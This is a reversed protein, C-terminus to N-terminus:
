AEKTKLNNRLRLVQLAGLLSFHLLAAAAGDHILLWHALIALAAPYTLRQLLRWHRGLLLVMADNSTLALPVLLIFALWGIWIAPLAVEALVAAANGMDALYLMTHLLAYAFASVGLYRRRRRMWRWFGSNPLLQRMPSIAMTLIMLRASLEGTPHLLVTTASRGTGDHEHALWLFLFAMGPLALLGCLVRPDDRLARWM